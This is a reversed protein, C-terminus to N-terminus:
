KAPNLAPKGSLVAIINNAALESMQQRAEVSASATHV